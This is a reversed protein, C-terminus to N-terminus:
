AQRGLTRITQTIRSDEAEMLSRAQEYARQVEILATIEYVPNVNATELFGQALRPDTLPQIDPSAFLTSSERTLTTAAATMVGLRAVPLSDASITGDSAIHVATADPPVFIPAGGEDLVRYGDKTVLESANNLLFRGDRTLREGAPTEVQFWGEGELSVDFTNGTRKLAGQSLDTYGAGTDVASVQGGAVDLQHIYESFVTDERRFGTTSINAINNAIIDLRRLAARQQGLIVYNANDM